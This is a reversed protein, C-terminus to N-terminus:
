LSKNRRVPGFPQHPLVNVVRRIGVKGAFEIQHPIARIGAILSRLGLEAMAQSM